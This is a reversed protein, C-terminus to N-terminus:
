YYDARSMYYGCVSCILKCRRSESRESCIPCCRSPDEAPTTLSQIGLLPAASKAAAQASEARVKALEWKAAREV